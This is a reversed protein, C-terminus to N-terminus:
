YASASGKKPIIIIVPTIKVNPATPSIECNPKLNSSIMLEIKADHMDNATPTM